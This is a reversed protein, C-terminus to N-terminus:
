NFEPWEDKKKKSQDSKTEKEIPPINWIHHNQIFLYDLATLITYNLSRDLQKAGQEIAEKLSDGPYISIKNNKNTEM